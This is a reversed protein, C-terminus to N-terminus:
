GMLFSFALLRRAADPLQSKDRGINWIGSAISGLGAASILASFGTSSNGFLLDAIAPALEPVGRAGVATCGVLIFILRIRPRSIVYQYGDKTHQLSGPQERRQTAGKAPAIRSIVIVAALYSLAAIAFVASVSWQILIAGAVAPGVFRAANFGLNNINTASGIHTNSALLTPFWSLQTPQSVASAIGIGVALLILLEATLLQFVRLVSLPCAILM